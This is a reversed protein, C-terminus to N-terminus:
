LTRSILHILIMIGKDDALYIGNNGDDKANVVTYTGDKNDKVGTSTVGRGDPDIFRIPNNITYNYPLGDEINRRWRILL